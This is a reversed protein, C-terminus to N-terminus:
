WTFTFQNSRDIQIKISSFCDDDTCLLLSILGLSRRLYHSLTRCGSCRSPTSDLLWFRSCVGGADERVSILMKITWHRLLLADVPCITFLVHCCSGLILSLFAFLILRKDDHTKGQLQLKRWIKCTLLTGLHFVMLKQLVAYTEKSWATLTCNANYLNRIFILKRLSKSM